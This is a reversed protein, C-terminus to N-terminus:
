FCMEFYGSSFVGSSSVARDKPPLGRVGGEGGREKRGIPCM